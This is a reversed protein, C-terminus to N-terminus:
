RLKDGGLLDPNAKLEDYIADATWAHGFANWHGDCSLVPSQKEDASRKAIMPDLDLHPIAHARSIDTIRTTFPTPIEKLARSWSVLLFRSDHTHALDQFQSLLAEQTKWLADTATADQSTSSATANADPKAQMNSYLILFRGSLSMVLKSKRLINKALVTYPNNQVPPLELIANGEADFRPPHTSNPSDKSFEYDTTLNIVLDPHYKAAYKEYYLMDLYTGNGSFGFPFVEYKRGSPAHENLKQALLTTFHKSLPVQLGEAFSSGIVAIRYTDPQKELAIDYAYFGANNITAKNENCESIAMFSTHPTYVLLGTKEDNYFKNYSNLDTLQLLCEAAL